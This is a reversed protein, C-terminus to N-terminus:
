AATRKRGAAEKGAWIGAEYAWIWRLLEKGRLRPSIERSGRHSYVRGGGEQYSLDLWGMEETANTPKTYGLAKNCRNLAQLHDKHTTM